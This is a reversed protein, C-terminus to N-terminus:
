PKWSFRGVLGAVGIFPIYVPQLINWIVYTMPSVKTRFLVGGFFIVGGELFFKLSFLLLINPAQIWLGTLISLNCLFATLLFPFLGLGTKAATKSNSSWRIRQNIFHTISKEPNTTVFSGPDTNVVARNLKAINQVLYMDDGSIQSKAREFGGIADFDERRYALNQGSGSWYLGAGAIGANAAMIGLFDLTQYQHLLSNNGLVKSYGITIGKSQKVCAAMSAVWSPPVRCDADTSVIIEGHSEQIAQTLAHKKSPMDNESESINVLKIFPYKPILNTIINKTNDTSRDNVIIIEMKGKPITQRILDKLLYPLRKEENRAAVIVSILPFEIESQKPSPLRFLGIIIVIVFILYSGTGLILFIDM